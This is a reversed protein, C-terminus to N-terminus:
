FFLRILAYGLFIGGGISAGLLIGKLAFQDLRRMDDTFDVQYPDRGDIYDRPPIPTKKSTDSM